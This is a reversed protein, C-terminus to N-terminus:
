ADMALRFGTQEGFKIDIRSFVRCDDSGSAWAGGRMILKGKVNDDECLEWVNGSMDYIGLENPKKQGVPHTAEGSNNDYWAVDDINNSGSYKYGHRRMGGKAAYEWETEKLLRFKKKTDQNLQKIFKQVDDWSVSNVPFNDDEFHSNEGLSSNTGNAVVDKLFNGGYLFRNISPKTANTSQKTAYADHGIVAKWQSKTVPFKGIYFDGGSFGKVLIMEISTDGDGVKITISDLKYRDLKDAFATNELEEFKICGKKFLAIVNSEDVNESPLKEPAFLNYLRIKQTLIDTGAIKEAAQFLEVESIQTLWKQLNGNAFSEYLSNFDFNRKVEEVTRCENGGVMLSFKIPKAKNQFRM